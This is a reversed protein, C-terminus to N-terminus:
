RLHDILKNLYWRCKKLDELGNKKDYRSIYKIVNARLYGELQEDTLKAIMYDITEIGGSTYHGPSEVSDDQNKM